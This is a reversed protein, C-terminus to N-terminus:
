AHYIEQIIFPVKPMASSSVFQPVHSQLEGVNSYAHISWVTPIHSCVLVRIKHMHQCYASISVMDGHTDALKVYVTRFNTGGMDLAFFDGSEFRCMDDDCCVSYIGLTSVHLQLNLLFQMGM